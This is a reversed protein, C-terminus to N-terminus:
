KTEKTRETEQGRRRVKEPEKERKKRGGEEGAERAL